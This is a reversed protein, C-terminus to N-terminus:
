LGSIQSRFRHWRAENQKQERVWVEEPRPATAVPRGAPKAPAEQKPRTINLDM